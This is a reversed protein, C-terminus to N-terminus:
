PMRRIIGKVHDSRATELQAKEAGQQSSFPGIMVRYWTINRQVTSNIHADFGHLVLSAKLKEAEQPRNFAAAQIFYKGTEVRATKHEDLALVPAISTVAAPQISKVPLKIEQGALVSTKAAPQTIVPKPANDKSLLTYFEFKPKPKPLEKAKVVKPSQPELPINKVFTHTLWHSLSSVDFIAATLYGLLFCTLALLLQSSINSKQRVTRRGYDKAM